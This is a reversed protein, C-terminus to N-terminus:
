KAEMKRISDELKKPDVTFHSLRKRDPRSGVLFYYKYNRLMAIFKYHAPRETNPFIELIKLKKHAFIMNTLGAGHIGILYEVNAFIRIQEILSLEATDVIEFKHQCLIPLIDSFNSLARRGKLNRTLFIKSCTTKQFELKEVEPFNFNGRSSKAFYICKYVRILSNKSVYVFKLKDYSKPWLAFYEQIINNHRVADPVLVNVYNKTISNNILELTPVIDVLFHYYNDWGYWILNVAESLQLTPKKLKIQLINIIGQPYHAISWPYRAYPFSFMSPIWGKYFCWGSSGEVISIGKKKYLYSEGISQNCAKLYKKQQNLDPFFSLMDDDPM